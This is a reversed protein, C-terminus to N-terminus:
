RLKLEYVANPPPPVFTSASLTAAVPPVPLPLPFAAATPVSSMSSSLTRQKGPTLRTPLVGAFGGGAARSVRRM